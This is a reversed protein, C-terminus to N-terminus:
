HSLKASLGLRIATILLRKDLTWLLSGASLRVAALLHANIYGIGVGFLAQQGIFRLVEEDTAIAAQPL